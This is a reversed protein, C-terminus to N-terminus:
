LGGGCEGGYIIGNELYCAAKVDKEFQCQSM